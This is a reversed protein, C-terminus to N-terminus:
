AGGFGFDKLVQDLKDANGPSVLVMFDIDETFRPAGHFALAYGGVLLFEVKQSLCLAIFEHIDPHLTM